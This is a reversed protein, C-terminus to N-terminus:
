KKPARYIKDAVTPYGKRRLYEAVGKPDGTLQVRERAQALVDADASRSGSSRSAPPKNARILAAEGGARRQGALAQESAIRARGQETPFIAPEDGFMGMLINGDQVKATEVPGNELGLLPANYDTFDGSAKAADVASQRFGQEQRRGEGQMTSAYNSGMDALMLASVLDAQEPSQGAAVLKDKIGSRAIEADRKKRADLLKDQLTAEKIAGQHYAAESNGLLSATGRAMNTYAASPAAQGAMLSWLDM